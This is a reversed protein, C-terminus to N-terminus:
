LGIKIVPVKSFLPEMYGRDPDIVLDVDEFIELAEDYSVEDSYSQTPIFVPLDQDFQQLKEILEKVRM